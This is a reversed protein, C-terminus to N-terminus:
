SAAKEKAYAAIPDSDETARGCHAYGFDESTEGPWLCGSQPDIQYGSCDDTCWSGHTADPVSRGHPAKARHCVACYVRVGVIM